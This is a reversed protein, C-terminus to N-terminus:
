LVANNTCSACYGASIPGCSSRYIGPTACLDCPVCATLGTTAAFTNVDCNACKTAGPGAAYTGKDCDACVLSGTTNTYKGGGCPSCTAQSNAGVAASFTGAACQLCITPSSAGVSASYTGGLCSTCTSVSSAGATVSYKGAICSQCNVNSPSGQVVSYTGASCSTCVTAGIGSYTGELCIGCSVPNTATLANYYGAICQHDCNPYNTNSYASNTPIVKTCSTVPICSQGSQSFGSNCAWACDSILTGKTSYTSNGPKNDCVVCSGSSNGACGSRYYGIGCAPQVTSCSSTPCLNAYGGNDSYYSGDGPPVANVLDVTALLTQTAVFLYLYKHM